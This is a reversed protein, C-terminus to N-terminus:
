GSGKRDPANVTSLQRARALSSTGFRRRVEDGAIDLSAEASATTASFLDPERDEGLGSVGVGLLRLRAGPNSKLWHDLLERAVQNFARTGASPSSLKRQRTVTNFDPTRLKITLTSALLGKDRTRSAVRDALKSLERYLDSRQGIDTDFTVEASLSKDGRKATVARTDQGSTLRRLRLSARAGLIAELRSSSARNVEGVTTLGAAALPKRQQPGLGPIVSLPLPDLFEAIREEPIAVMGDPKDLDSAIKAILKNPGIGVSCTLSTEEHVKSKISQGIQISGGFLTLSATVDLFAEDLSLGEVQPTFQKFISFVVKSEAQYHIMRPKVIALQPCRARAQSMPMASFIGFRRAEYSAAAVVGRPGAGGVVLPVGRLKPNDRQEVSAYFADMDVHIVTRM